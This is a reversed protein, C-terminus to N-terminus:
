VGAPEVLYLSMVLAGSRWVEHVTRIALGSAEAEARLAPAISQAYVRESDHPHPRDESPALVQFPRQGTRVLLSRWHERVCPEVDSRRACEEFYEHAQVSHVREGALSELTLAHLMTVTVVPADPRAEAARAVEALAGVNIPSALSAQDAVRSATCAALLAIAGAAAASRVSALRRAIGDVRRGFFVAVDHITSAVAVGFVPFVPSYNASIGQRYMLSSVMVFTGILMGCAASLPSGRGTWLRRLATAICFAICATVLWVAPGRREIAGTATAALFAGTDGGFAGANLLEPVFAALHGASAWQLRGVTESSLGSSPDVHAFWLLLMPAPVASSGVVLWRWGLRRSVDVERLAWVALPALLFLAKVNTLTACGFFFGAAAARATSPAREGSLAPSLVLCGAATWIWIFSEYPFFLATLYASASTAAAMAVALGARADDALRRVLAWTLGLAAGGSLLLWAIRLRVITTGLLPYFAAIPWGFVSSAYSTALIPWERGGACAALAPRTRRSPAIDIRASPDACLRREPFGREAADARSTVELTGAPALPLNAVEESWTPVSLANVVGLGLLLLVAAGV